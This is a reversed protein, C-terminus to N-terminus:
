TRESYSSQTVFGIEGTKSRNMSEESRGFKFVQTPNSAQTTRPSGGVPLSSPGLRGRGGM